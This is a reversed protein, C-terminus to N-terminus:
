YIFPTVYNVSVSDPFVQTFIAMKDFKRIENKQIVGDRRKNFQSM